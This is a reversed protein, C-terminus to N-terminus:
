GDEVQFHHGAMKRHDTAAVYTQFECLHEASEARLDRDDSSRCSRRMAWSSSSTDNATCSIRRASPMVSRSPESHIRRSSRSPDGM